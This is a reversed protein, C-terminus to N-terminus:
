RSFIKKYSCVSFFIMIWYPAIISATEFFYYVLLFSSMAMVMALFFDLEILLLSKKYSKVLLYMPVLHFAISPVVGYKLAQSLYNNHVDFKYATNNYESSGFFNFHQLGARWLELRGSTGDGRNFKFIFYEVVEYIFYYASLSIIATILLLYFFVKIKARKVRAYVSVVILISVFAALIPARSNSSMLFLSSLFITPLVIAKFRGSNGSFLLYVLSILLSYGSFRGMSNPMDFIGEYRYFYISDFGLSAIIFLFNIIIVLKAVIFGAKENFLATDLSLKWYVLFIVVFSFYTSIVRMDQIILGSLLSSILMLSLTMRIVFPIIIIVKSATLIKFFLYVCVLLMLLYFSNSLRGYGLFSINNSM